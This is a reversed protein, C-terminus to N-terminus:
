WGSRFRLWEVAAGHPLSRLVTARDDPHAGFAVVDFRESGFSDLMEADEALESGFASTVASAEAGDNPTDINSSRRNGALSMRLVFPTGSSTAVLRARTGATCPRRRRVLRM